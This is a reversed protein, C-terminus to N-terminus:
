LDKRFVYSTKTYRMKNEYFRHAAERELGSCLAVCHLNKERALSEIHSLLIEGYGKGREKEDVVLEHVWIHNKWYMNLQEVFGAFALTKEGECLCIARYGQAMMETAIKIFEDATQQPRLQHVFPYVEPLEAPTLEKIKMTM